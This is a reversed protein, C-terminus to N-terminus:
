IHILSLYLVTSWLKSEGIRLWKYFERYTKETRVSSTEKSAEIIHVGAVSGVHPDALYKVGKRISDRQLLCDADTKVFIEGSMHKIAENLANVMGLRETQCIIQMRIEPRLASWERALSVTADGSASDVVIIEMKERAYELEAINDLKRKIAAEEEFTPVVLSLNPEYASDIKLNWPKKIANTRMYLIYLGFPVVSLGLVAFWLLELLM